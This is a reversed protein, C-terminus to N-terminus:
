HSAPRPAPVPIEPHRLWDLRARSYPHELLRRRLWFIDINLLEALTEASGRGTSTFLWLIADQSDPSPRQYKREYGHLYATADEMARVLIAAALRRYATFDEDRCATTPSTPCNSWLPIPYISPM